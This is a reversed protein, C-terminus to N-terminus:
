YFKTYKLEIGYLNKMSKKWSQINKKNGRNAIGLIHVVGDGQYEVVYRGQSKKILFYGGGLGTSRKSADM